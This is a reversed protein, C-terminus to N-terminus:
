NSGKESGESQKLWAGWIGSPVAILLAVIWVSFLRGKVSYKVQAEGELEQLEITVKHRGEGDAAISGDFGQDTQSLAVRHVSGSGESSEGFLSLEVTASDASCEVEVLVLDGSDLELEVLELHGESTTVTRPAVTLVFATLLLSGSLLLLIASPKLVSASGAGAM